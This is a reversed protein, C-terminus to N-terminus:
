VVSQSRRRTIPSGVARKVMVAKGAVAMAGVSAMTAATAVAAVRAEEARAVAVRAEEARAAARAAPLTRLRGRTRAGRRRNNGRQLRLSARISCGSGRAESAEPMVTAM